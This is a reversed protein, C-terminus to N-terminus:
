AARRKRLVFLLTGLAAFAGYTAPEPVETTIITYGTLDLGNATGYKAYLGLTDGAAYSSYYFSHLTASTADVYSSGNYVDINYSSLLTSVSILSSSKIALYGDNLRLTSHGTAMVLDGGKVVTLGGDSITLTGTSYYGASAGGGIYLDGSNIWLSTGSVGVTAVGTTTKKGTDYNYGVYASTDTVGGGNQIYLNGTGNNAMYLGQSNTWKSGSGTVTITGKGPYFDGICTGDGAASDGGSTLKAGNSVTLTATGFRGIAIYSGVSLSSGSGTVTLSGSTNTSYAMYLRGNTTSGTSTSSVAYGNITANNSSTSYGIFIDHAGYAVNSGFNYATSGADMKYYSSYNSSNITVDGWANQLSCTASLLYPSPKM